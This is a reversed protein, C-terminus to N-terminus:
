PQTWDLLRKAQNRVSESRKDETEGALVSLATTMVWRHSDMRIVNLLTLLGRRREEPDWLQRQCGPDNPNASARALNDGIGMQLWNSYREYFTRIAIDQWHATLREHNRTVESATEVYRLLESGDPDPLYGVSGERVATPFLEVDVAEGGEFSVDLALARSTSPSDTQTGFYFNGLSHVILGNGYREWGQAVHPHHGVVVDAGSDVFRRLREQRQPPPLPVYEVGGHAVVVVVDGSEAATAITETVEPCDDWAAGPSDPGAVNFERECVNVVTVDVDPVPEFRAPSRADDADQGVGVTQLGAAECTDLTRELGPPGYDMVHNNALTALDFGAAALREGADPHMELAPGSKDIADTDSPVVPAEFNVAALDANRIREQLRNDIFQNADTSVPLFCDGAVFLSWTGVGGGSGLDTQLSPLDTM